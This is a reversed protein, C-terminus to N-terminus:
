SFIWYCSQLKKESLLDQEDVAKLVLRSIHPVRVSLDNSGFNAAFTEELKAIRELVSDFESLFNARLLSIHLIMDVHMTSMQHFAVVLKSIADLDIKPPM